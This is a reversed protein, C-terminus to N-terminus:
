PEVEDEESEELSLHDLGELSDKDKAAKGELKIQQTAIGKRESQEIREIRREAVILDALLLEEDLQDVDGELEGVGDTVEARTDEDEEEEEPEEVKAKRKRTTTKKVPAEEEDEDESDAMVVDACPIDFVTAHVSTSIIGLMLLLLLYLQKM